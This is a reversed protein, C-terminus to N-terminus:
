QPLCVGGSQTEATSNDVPVEDLESVAVGLLAAGPVDKALEDCAGADVELVEVNVLVVIDSLEVLATCLLEAVLLVIGLLEVEEKLVDVREPLTEVILLAVIELLEACSLTVDEELLRLEDANGPLADDELLVMVELLM